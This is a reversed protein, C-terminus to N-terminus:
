AKVMAPEQPQNLQWPAVPSFIEVLYDIFMRTKAALHGAGPYLAYIGTEPICWDPLVTKLKGSRLADATIFDALLAIGAGGCAAEFLVGADNARLWPSIPILQAEGAKKLEWRNGTRLHSFHLCKHGLLDDPAQPTGYRELYTPSAVLRRYNDALKRVRLSSDKLEGIRIAVDIRQDVLDVFHDTFQLDVRIDPYRCMFAPIKPAVHLRGFTSPVTVTLLGAPRAGLSAAIADAEDLDTMIRDVHSLYLEGAETLTVRRTTRVLLQVGLLDELRKVRRSLTSPTLDLAVAAGVFSLRRATELFALLLALKDEAIRLSDNNRIM